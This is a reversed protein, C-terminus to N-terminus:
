RPFNIIEPIIQSPTHKGTIIEDLVIKGDICRYIEKIIKDPWPVGNGFTIQSPFRLVIHLESSDVLDISQVKANPTYSTELM